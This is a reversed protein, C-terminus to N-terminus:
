CSKQLWQECVNQGDREVSDLQKSFYVVPRPIPGLKQTLADLAIRRRKGKVYLTLPKELNPLQLSPFTRLKEKLEKFGQQCSDDREFPDLDNGQM